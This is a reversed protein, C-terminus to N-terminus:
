LSFCLARNDSIIIKTYYNFSLTFTNSDLSINMKGRLQVLSGWKLQIAVLHRQGKVGRADQYNFIYGM